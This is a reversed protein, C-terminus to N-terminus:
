KLQIIEYYIGHLVETCVPIEEALICLRFRCDATGRSAKPHKVSHKVKRSPPETESGTARASCSNTTSVYYNVVRSRIFGSLHKSM